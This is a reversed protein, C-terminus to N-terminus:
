QTTSVKDYMGVAENMAKLVAEVDSAVIQREEKSPVVGKTIGILIKDVPTWLDKVQLLKARIEDNPPPMITGAYGNILADLTADFLSLSEALNSINKQPDVGAAALCAEKAAKQTLMRQRGALNVTMGVVAPLEPLEAGYKSSIVGVTDNMEELLHLGAADIEGLTTADVPKGDLIDQLRPAFQTWDEDVKALGVLIAPNNELGLGLSEDGIQLAKATKEFTEISSKLVDKQGDVDVGMTIFCASKVMRQSLMRQRGALNVRLKAENAAPTQAVVPPVFVTTAVGLMALAMFAGFKDSIKM